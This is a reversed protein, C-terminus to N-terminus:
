KLEGQAASPPHGHETVVEWSDLGLLSVGTFCGQVYINGTEHNICTIYGDHIYGSDEHLDIKVRDGFKLGKIRKVGKATAVAFAQDHEKQNM